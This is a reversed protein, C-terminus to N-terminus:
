KRPILWARFALTTLRQCEELRAGQTLRKTPGRYAHLSVRRKERDCGGITCLGFRSHRVLTGRKEGLSITGGYLKRRGWKQAQLRHLQRRHLQMPVVYWLLTCTPATAGSVSAALVWADVAYSSFEQRAKDHTKTLGHHDRLQSTVLGSFLHPTLGMDNLVHSLHAKGMQVPSFATSWNSGKGSRMVAQVDEVAADTVPLITTLHRVLRAKAEWRSRTSPPLRPKGALRNQARCPRRWLRFRRARRMTHRTEMAHKVQTPAEVMLNCVTDKTGVVSFGEFKSGPDIGVVLRQNDPEQEYSLQLYFLGAKNRKPRAKGAKLL